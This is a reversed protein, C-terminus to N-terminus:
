WEMESITLYILELDTMEASKQNPADCVQIVELLDFKETNPPEPISPDWRYVKVGGDKERLVSAWVHAVQMIDSMTSGKALRLPVRALVLEKRKAEGM